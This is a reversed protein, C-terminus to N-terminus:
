KFPAQNSTRREGTEWVQARYITDPVKNGQGDRAPRYRFRKVILTCTTRDLEPHGSSEDIACQRVRGDTGITLKVFVTGQAHAAYAARPYDRGSIGGRIREAPVAV